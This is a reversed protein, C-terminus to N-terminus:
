PQRLDPFPRRRPAAFCKLFSTLSCFQRGPPASRKAHLRFSFLIFRSSFPGIIRPHSLVFPAFLPSWPDWLSAAAEVLRNEVLGRGRWAPLKKGLKGRRFSQGSGSVRRGNTAGADRLEIKLSDEFRARMCIDFKRPLRRSVM